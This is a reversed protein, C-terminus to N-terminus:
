SIDNEMLYDTDVMIVGTDFYKKESKEGKILSDLAVMGLYGMQDQKQMLSVGQYDSSQIIQKTEESLDFGAMVIDTRKEKLLTNAIGTASTNNCGFIGKIDQNEKLLKSADEQAKKVDGGNLPIDRAIEWEEPAYDAWYDLFGSVRNVMAQSTDSSLMIGVKLPESESCGNQYLMDLMEKAAMEGAELNDTMYCADFKDSNISSDILVLPIENDKATKCSEVLSDSNAPALLIGDADEKIAQDMLSIQGDIDTENDIGGLYVAEDLEEAASTIGEIVKEWYQGHYNKLIVYIKKDSDPNSICSYEVVASSDEAQDTDAKLIGKGSCGSLLLCAACFVLLTASTIKKRPIHVKKKLKVTQLKMRSGIDQKQLLNSNVGNEAARKAPYQWRVIVQLLKQM